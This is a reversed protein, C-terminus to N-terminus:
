IRWSLSSFTLGSKSLSVLIPDPRPLLPIAHKFDPGIITHKQNSPTMTGDEEPICAPRPCPFFSPLIAGEEKIESITRRIWDWDGHVEVGERGKGGARGRGGVSANLELRRHVHELKSFFFGRLHDIVLLLRSNKPAMGYNVRRMSEHDQVM